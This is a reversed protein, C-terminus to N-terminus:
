DGLQSGEFNGYVTGDTSGESSGLAIGFYVGPLIRDMSDLTKGLYKGDQLGLEIVKNPGLEHRDM